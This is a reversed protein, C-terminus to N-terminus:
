QEMVRMDTGLDEKHAQIVKAMQHEIMNGAARIEGLAMDIVMLAEKSEAQSMNMHEAIAGREEVIQLHEGMDEREEMVVLRREGVEKDTVKMHGAVKTQTPGQVVETHELKAQTLREEKRELVQETVMLMEEERMDGLTLETSLLIWEGLIAEKGGPKDMGTHILVVQAKKLILKERAGTYEERTQNEPTLGLVQHHHQHLPHPHHTHAGTVEVKVGNEMLSKGM